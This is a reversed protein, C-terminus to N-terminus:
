FSPQMPSKLHVFHVMFQFLQFMLFLVPVFRFNRSTLSMVDARRKRNTEITQELEMEIQKLLRDISASFCHKERGNRNNTHIGRSIGLVHFSACSHFFRRSFNAHPTWNPRPSRGLFFLVHALSNTSISFHELCPPAPM